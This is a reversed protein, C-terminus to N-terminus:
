WKFVTNYCFISKKWFSKKKKNKKNQQAFTSGTEKQRQNIIYTEIETKNQKKSWKSNKM